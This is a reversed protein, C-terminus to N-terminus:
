LFNTILGISAGIFLGIVFEMFDLAGTDSVKREQWIEFIGFSVILALGVTSNLWLCFGALLGGAIHAITTSKRLSVM